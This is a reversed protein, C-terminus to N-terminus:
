GRTLQDMVRAVAEDVLERVRPWRDAVCDNPMVTVDDAREMLLADRVGEPTTLRADVTVALVGTGSHGVEQVVVYLTLSSTGVTLELASWWHAADPSLLCRTAPGRDPRKATAEASGGTHVTARTGPDLSRLIPLVSDRRSRLHELIRRRVAAALPPVTVHQRHEGRSTWSLEVRLAEEVLRAFRRVTEPFRERGKPGIGSPPSLLPPFDARQLVLSTLLWPLVWTPPGGAGTPPDSERLVEVCTLYTHAARVVPHTPLTAAEALREADRAGLPPAPAPGPDGKPPEATRRALETVYTPTIPNGSMEESSTAAVLEALAGDGDLERSRRRALGRRAAGRESRPIRNLAWTERLRDIDRLDERVHDPLTNRVVVGRLSDM